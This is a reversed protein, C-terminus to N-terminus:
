IGFKNNKGKDGKNRNKNALKKKKTNLSKLYFLKKPLDIKEGKKFYKYKIKKM